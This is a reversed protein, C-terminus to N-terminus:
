GRGRRASWPPWPRRRSARSSWRRGRTRASTRWCCISTFSYPLFSLGIAMNISPWDNVLSLLFLIMVIGFIKSSTFYLVTSPNISLGIPHSHFVGITKKAFYIYYRSDLIFNSAKNEAVNPCQVADVDGNDLLIILGCVEETKNKDAFAKIKSKIKTSIM